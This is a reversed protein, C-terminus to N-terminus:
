ISTAYFGSMRVRVTGATYPHSAHASNAVVLVGDYTDSAITGMDAGAGTTGVIMVTTEGLADLVSAVFSSTTYGDVDIATSRDTARVTGMVITSSGITGSSTFAETVTWRIEDVIFNKPILVGQTGSTSASGLIAATASLLDTWDLDFEIVHRGDLNNLMGGPAVDAAETGYKIYLGDGNTWSM